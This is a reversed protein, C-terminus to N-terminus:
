HTAAPGGRMRLYAAVILGYTSRDHMLRERDAPGALQAAEAQVDAHLQEVLAQTRADGLPELVEVCMWRLGITQPARLSALEGTLADLAANVRALAAEHQGLAIECQAARTVCEWAPLADNLDRFVAQAQLCYPLGAVPDNQLLRLLGLERLTNAEMARDGVARALPLTRECWHLTTAYDSRGATARILRWQARVMYPVNGSAQALALMHEGWRLVEDWRGRTSDLVALNDLAGLQLRPVGLAEGRALVGLLTEHSEDYRSLRLSVMASLTLLRAETPARESEAEIMRAWRLGPEVHALAAEDAHRAIHLWVLLGHSLAAPGAAGCREALECARRAHQESLVRDGRRDALMGLSYWLRAQRTDDPHRELLAAMDANAADQAPRDGVTDATTQIESLLDFRRAPESEGLLALARRLWSVAATNAFRKQAEKGAQEFCDIALATEGAREAHEGTMALFEAGRGQTREGLWRAIAGHGLRREAKLLTDYTVQHLLHHDFQRETTGEFDSAEHARVFAARQLAPLAQTAKDDLAQLADDWFVHGIVSAQRAALRDAAPLADLRAQLLGVLTGPLHVRDLRDVQVTWRPEGVVIVGDDILRRVLEEMYYPNGEAQGVVLETLRAPVEGLRQLLAQALADSQAAALPALHLLTEPTAWDPRRTLLAPRSTMILALPLEAAHALLDQLLDLSGDDAWHLDEVILVPFEGGRAALAQLYARLAAFAQDRLSRPDLGRVHPSDGFDLGSLQGILQAQREGREEFWPSLGEIVKQRAVEARDTDAVGFQTALLGRLLGWPRLMGDPQSRVTMVACGTLGAVLERLMRSKGLGADGVLTLAQLQRTERARAVTNLLRQLEAERGVMPTSLGQLGREVGAAHRDLAARVLYTQIPAAIGKVLLLPQVEVAFLGRVHNWTDHSIRLAGPPASQEMRAAINVATGVATNDAEVGTGGLAVDGTHVGVRVAFDPIGHALRAVEAQECGAALLALGARVAREPDDERAEDMGFAAKVGDGTFRLVRGQHDEILRAMRQLAADLWQLKEEADQGQAMSAAGVVDAFLVTVQRRQIGSPRLLGALRTRLPAVALELVADGLTGRQGELVAIAARLSAIETENM